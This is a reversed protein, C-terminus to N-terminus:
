LKYRCFLNEDIRFFVDLSLVFGVPRDFTLLCIFLDSSALYLYLMNLYCFPFFFFLYIFLFFFCLRLRVWRLYGVLIAPGCESFVGNGGVIRYSASTLFSM